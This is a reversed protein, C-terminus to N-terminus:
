FEVLLFMMLLDSMLVVVLESMGEILFEVLEIVIDTLVEIVDILLETVSLSLLKERVRFGVDILLILFLFKVNFCLYSPEYALQLIQFTLLALTFDIGFDLADM